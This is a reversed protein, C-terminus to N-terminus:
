SFVKTILQTDLSFIANQFQSDFLLKFDQSEYKDTFNLYIFHFHLLAVRDSRTSIKLSYGNQVCVYLVCM